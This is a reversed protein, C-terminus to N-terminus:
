SGFICRGWLCFVTLILYFFLFLCFFVEMRRCSHVLLNIINKPCSFICSMGVLLLVLGWHINMWENKKKKKLCICVHRSVSHPMKELHPSANTFLIFSRDRHLKQKHIHTYTCTYTCPSHKFFAHSMELLHQLLSGLGAWPAPCAARPGSVELM